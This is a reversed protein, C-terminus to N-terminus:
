VMVSEIALKIDKAQPIVDMELPGAPLPYNKSCVRKIPADLLDFGKDIVQAALEAAFGCREREEDVIVLRMTKEVSNLITDMDLPELTRPDIVEVSITGNLEKAVKMVQKVMAGYTVVTVDTGEKVINAKGFPVTYDGEPIEGKEMLLNKHWFYIVPNNDRIAAKMLGKADAPNSPVVVKCGVNHLAFGTLMKSHDNGIQLGGGNSSLFVMPVSSKGGQLFHWQGAKSIEDAVIYMFDTYMFDAIPRYGALAAGIAASAIGNEALPTDMVREPGFEKILDETHMYVGGRVSEGLIFVTEDRRMEEEFAEKIAHIYTQVRMIRYGTVTM